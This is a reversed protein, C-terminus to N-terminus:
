NQNRFDCILNEGSYYRRHPFSSIANDFIQPIAKDIDPHLEIALTDVRSLWEHFNYSFIQKETGEIDIKLIGIRNINYEYVIDVLSVADVTKLGEINADTTQYGWNGSENAM